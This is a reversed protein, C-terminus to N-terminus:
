PYATPNANRAQGAALAGIAMVAGPHGWGERGGALRDEDARKPTAPSRTTVTATVTNRRNDRRLATLESDRIRRQSPRDPRPAPTPSAPRPAVDTPPSPDRSRRCRSDHTRSRPSSRSPRVEFTCARDARRVAALFTLAAHAHTSKPVSKMNRASACAWRGGERLVDELGPM